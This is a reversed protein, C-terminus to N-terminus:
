EVVCNDQSAIGDMRCDQLSEQQKILNYIYTDYFDAIKRHEDTTGHLKIRNARMSIIIVNGRVYGRNNDIRDFSPSNEQMQEAFWDLEIDLIPCLLPFIIDSPLLDWKHRGKANQKKRTFARAMARSLDDPHYWVDRGTRQKFEALYVEMRAAKRLSVGRDARNLEPLYRELVQYIRQRSVGYHEGLEQLTKGQKCMAEIAPIEQKWKISM